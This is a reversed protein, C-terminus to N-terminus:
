NLSMGPLGISVGAYYTRAFQRILAITSAAPSTRKEQHSVEVSQRKPSVVNPTSFNKM